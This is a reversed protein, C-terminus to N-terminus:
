KKEVLMAVEWCSIASVGCVNAKNIHEIAKKSLKSSETVYWIWIHTDLIVM